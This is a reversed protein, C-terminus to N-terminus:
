LKVYTPFNAIITIKKDYKLTLLGFYASIQDIEQNIKFYARQSTFWRNAKNKYASDHEQERISPFKKPAKSFKIIRLLKLAKSVNVLVKM